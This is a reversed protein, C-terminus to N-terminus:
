TLFTAQLFGHSTEIETFQVENYHGTDYNDIRTYNFYIHFMVDYLKMQIRILNQM